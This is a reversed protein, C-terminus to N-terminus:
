SKKKRKNKSKTSKADSSKADVPAAVLAVEPAPTMEVEDFSVEIDADNESDDGAEVVPAEIVPSSKRSAAVLDGLQDQPMVATPDPAPKSTEIVLLEEPAQPAPPQPAPPQPEPEASPAPPAAIPPIMVTAFTTPQIPAPPPMPPLSKPAASPSLTAEVAASLEGVSMKCYRAVGDLAAGNITEGGDHPLQWMKLIKALTMPAGAFKMKRSVIYAALAATQM